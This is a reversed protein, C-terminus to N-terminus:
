RFYFRRKPIRVMIASDCRIVGMKVKNSISHELLIRVMIASDRRIVGM